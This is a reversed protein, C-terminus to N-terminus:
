ASLNAFLRPLDQPSFSNTTSVLHSWIPINNQGELPLYPLPISRSVRSLSELVLFKSLPSSFSPRFSFTPLFALLLNDSHQRNDWCTDHLTVYMFTNFLRIESTSYVVENYRTNILQCPFLGQSLDWTFRRFSILGLLTPLLPYLISGRSGDLSM